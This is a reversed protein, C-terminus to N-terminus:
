TDMPLRVSLIFLHRTSIEMWKPSFEGGSDLGPEWSDELGSRDLRYTNKEYQLGESGSM